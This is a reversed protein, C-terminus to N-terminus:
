MEDSTDLIVVPFCFLLTELLTQNFLIVRTNYVNALMATTLRDIKSFRKANKKIVDTTQWFEM